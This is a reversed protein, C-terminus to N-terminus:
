IIRKDFVYKLIIELKDFGNTENKSVKSKIIEVKQIWNEKELIKAIEFKIKSMPLVVEHKGTA